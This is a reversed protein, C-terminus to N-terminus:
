REEAAKAIIAEFRGRAAEPNKEMIDLRALNRAAPLYDFKLELAKAFSTRANKTDGNAVYIVGKVNYTLPNNPQKKELTGAAALAKDYEKRRLHAAILALDAQYGSADLASASELDKMADDVDGVALRVQGLRTRTRADGKDLATAREYYQSAKALDNNALAAAGALALVKPDDPLRRLAADLLEKAREPHGADLYVSILLLQAETSQPYQSLVRRLYEAATDYSKLQYDAVGALFLSPTHNPMGKLAEQVADRTKTPNGQRFALLAELYAVRPDKPYATRMAAIEAAADDLKSERIRLTALAFRALFNNPQVKVVQEVAKIAGETDNQALLLDAKLTLAEPLAPATVLVEDVIKMAGAVDKDSAVLMAQGVRAREYGPKAKLAAEFAGRAEDRQALGLYALGLETKLSAAAEPDALTKDKFEAVVGKRNGQGLMAQALAPYVGDGTYSHELAKRLEKEATVYDMEENLAQGLLFRAEANDPQKQLVTRLQITAANYDGKASFAKASDILAQPTEKGCGALTMALLGAIALTRSLNNLVKVGNWGKKNTMCWIARAEGAQLCRRVDYLSPRAVGLRYLLTDRNEGMLSMLRVVAEPGDNM